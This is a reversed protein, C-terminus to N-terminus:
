KKFFLSILFFLTSVIVILSGIPLDTFQFAVMGLICSLSGFLFGSYSYQTLNTSVNRAACAPISVLAATMLGGVPLPSVFHAKASYVAWSDCAKPPSLIDMYCDECYVNGRYEYGQNKEIEKGCKTCQIVLREEKQENM